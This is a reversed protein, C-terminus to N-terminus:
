VMEAEVAIHILRSAVACAHVQLRTVLIVAATRHKRVRPGPQIRAVINIVQVGDRNAGPAAVVATRLVRRHGQGLAQARAAAQGAPDAVATAVGVTGANIQAPDAAALQKATIHVPLYRQEVARGGEAGPVLTVAADVQADVQRQALRGAAQRGTDAATSRTIACAFEIARQAVVLGKFAVEEFAIGGAKGGVTIAHAEIGRGLKFGTYEVAIGVRLPRGIVTLEATAQVEVTGHGDARAGQRGAATKVAAVPCHNDVEVRIDVVQHQTGIVHATAITGLELGTAVHHRHRSVFTARHVEIKRAIVGMGRGDLRWVRTIVEIFATHQVLLHPHKFGHRYKAPHDVGLTSRHRASM